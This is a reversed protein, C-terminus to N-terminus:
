EKGLEKAYAKALLLSAFCAAATLGLGASLGLATYPVFSGGKISGIVDYHLMGWVFACLAIGATILLSGSSFARRSKYIRIFYLNALSLMFAAAPIIVAFLWMGNKAGEPTAAELAVGATIVAFSLFLAASQMISARWENVRECKKKAPAPMTFEGASSKMEEFEKRCSECEAIHENVLEVSGRSACEDLVLPMIDKIVECKM